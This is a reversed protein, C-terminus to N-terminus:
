GAGLSFLFLPNQSPEIGERPLFGQGSVSTNRLVAQSRSDPDLRLRRLVAGCAGTQLNRALIGTAHTLMGAHASSRAAANRM